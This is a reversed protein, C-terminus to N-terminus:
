PENAPGAETPNKDVMAAAIPWGARDTPFVVFRGDSAEFTEAASDAGDLQDLGLSAQGVYEAQLFVAVELLSM